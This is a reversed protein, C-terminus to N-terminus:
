FTPRRGGGEGRGGRNRRHRGGGRRHPSFAFNIFGPPPPLSNSSDRLERQQQNQRIFHQIRFKGNSLLGDLLSAHSRDVLYRQGHTFTHHIVKIHKAKLTHTPGYVRSIWDDM